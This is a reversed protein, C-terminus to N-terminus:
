PLARVWQDCMQIHALDNPHILDYAVMLPGTEDFQLDDIGRLIMEDRIDDFWPGSLATRGDVTRLVEPPTALIVGDGLDADDLIDRVAEITTVSLPVNASPSGDGLMLFIDCTAPLHDVLGDGDRCAAIANPYYNECEPHLNGETPAPCPALFSSCRWAAVPGIWDSPDTGPVSLDIVNANLWANGAPMKKVLDRICGAVTAAGLVRTGELVSTFSAVNASDGTLCITKTAQAPQAGLALFVLVLLRRM